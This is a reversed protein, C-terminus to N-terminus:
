GWVEQELCSWKVGELLWGRCGTCLGRYGPWSGFVGLQADVADAAADVASADKKCYSKCYPKYLLECSTTFKGM